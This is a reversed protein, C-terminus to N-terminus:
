YEEEPILSVLTDPHLRMHVCLPQGEVLLSIHHEMILNLDISFINNFERDLLVIEPKPKTRYAITGTVTCYLGASKSTVVAKIRTGAQFYDMVQM